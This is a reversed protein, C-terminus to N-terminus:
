INEINQTNKSDNINILEIPSIKVDSPQSYGVNNSFEKRLEKIKTFNYIKKISKIVKIIDEREIPITSSYRMGSSFDYISLCENKITKFSTDIREARNQLYQINHTKEVSEGNYKIFGNLFKELAQNSLNCIYPYKDKKNYYSKSAVVDALSICDIEAMKFLEFPSETCINKAM